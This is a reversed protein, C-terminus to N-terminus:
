IKELDHLISCHTGQQQLQQPAHPVFACSVNGHGICNSAVQLPGIKNNHAVWHLSYKVNVGENELLGGHILKLRNPFVFEAVGLFQFEFVAVGSFQFEFVFSLKPGANPAHM